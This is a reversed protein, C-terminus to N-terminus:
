AVECRHGLTWAEGCGPCPEGLIPAGAGFPNLPEEPPLRQVGAQNSFTGTHSGLKQLSMLPEKSARTGPHSRELRGTPGNSDCPPVGSPGVTPGKCCFQHCEPVKETLVYYHNTGGRGVGRHVVEIAKSEELRTLSRFVSSRALRTEDVIRSVAPRSARGNQHSALSVLVLRDTACATDAHNLVWVVTEFSLADVELSNILYPRDLM